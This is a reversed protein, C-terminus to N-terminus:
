AYGRMQLVIGVFFNPVVLGAFTGIAFPIWYRRYIKVGGIKMILYRILTMILISGGYLVWNTSYAGIWVGIPDLFFWTFHAHMLTVVISGIIGLVTMPYPNVGMFLSETTQRTMEVVYPTDFIMYYSWGGASGGCGYAALLDFGGLTHVYWFALPGIVLLSVILSIIFAISIGREDAGLEKSLKHIALGGASQFDMFYPVSNLTITSLALTNFAANGGPDGWQGLLKGFDNIPAAYYNARDPAGGDVAGARSAYVMLFHSVFLTVVYISIALFISIGAMTAFGIALVATGLWVLWVTRYSWPEGAERAAGSIAMKLTKFLHKRYLIIYAIVVGYIWGGIGEHSFFFGWQGKQEYYWTTWSGQTRYSWDLQGSLVGILPILYQVVAATLIATYLVNMPMFATIAWTRTWNFNLDWPPGPLVDQLYPSLYLHGGGYSSSFFPVNFEPWGPIIWPLWASFTYSGVINSGWFVGLWFMPFEPINKPSFVSRREEEAKVHKIMEIANTAAPFTVNEIDIMPKRFLLVFFYVSVMFLLMYINWYFYPVMWYSWDMAGGHLWSEIIVPNKPTWLDPLLNFYEPYATYYYALFSAPRMVLNQYMVNGQFESAMLTVGGMAILVAYEAGTLFGRQKRNLGYDVLMIFLLYIGAPIQYASVGAYKTEFLIWLYNHFAYLAFVLILIRPTLGTLGLLPKSWVSKARPSVVEKNSM